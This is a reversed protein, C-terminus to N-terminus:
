AAQKPQEVKTVFSGDCRFPMTISYFGNTNDIQVPSIHDVIAVRTYWRGRSDSRRAGDIADFLYALNFGIKFPKPDGVAM